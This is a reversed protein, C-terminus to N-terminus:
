WRSSTAACGCRTIDRLRGTRLLRQDPLAGAVALEGSRPSSPLCRVAGGAARGDGRPRTQPARRHARPARSSRRGPTRPLATGPVRQVGRPECLAAAPGHLQAAVLGGSGGGGRTTARAPAVTGTGSSTTRSSDASCGRAGVRGTVSSGRCWAGTTTTSFRCRCRASSRSRTCTGTSGHRPRRRLTHGFTRHTATRCTSPSSISKRSSGVLSRGRKALIPRRTGRRIFWRCTCRGVGAIISAFM